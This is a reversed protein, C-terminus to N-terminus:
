FSHRVGMVFASQDQGTNRVPLSQIVHRSNVENSLKVYGLNLETRKSLAHAYQLGLLRSGTGGAGANGAYNGVNNTSNGSTDDAVTYGLRLSHPGAIKWDGYVGWGKNILKTTNTTEYETRVYIAGLKFNGFTYAGAIQWADDDGGSYQTAGVGIVRNAPNYNKHREFGAGLALPGASYNMGVSLLRPKGTAAPIATATSEDTSSYAGSVVLGNWVPSHYNITNAQRRSFSVRNGVAVVAPTGPVAPDFELTSTGGNITNGAIGNMLQSSIGFAGVTSFPRFFGGHALKFPTDWHGAFINGFAGKIGVASNRECLGQPDGIAGPEGTPDLTSECQFWASMGGGLKEEGRFGIFSDYRSFGDVNLRGAGQDVFNYDMRINGYIQVTSGQAFALAPAALAGAVAIAMLKQKM